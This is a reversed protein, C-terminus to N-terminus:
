ATDMSIINGMYSTADYGKHEREHIAFETRRDRSGASDKTSAIGLYGKGGGYGSDLAINWRLSAFTGLVDRSNPLSGARLSLM